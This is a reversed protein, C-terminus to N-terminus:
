NYKQLTPIDQLQGQLKNIKEELTRHLKLASKLNKLLTVLPQSPHSKQLYRKTLKTIDAYDFKKTWTAPTVTHLSPENEIDHLDLVTNGNNNQIEFIALTTLHKPGSEVWKSLKKHKQYRHIPTDGNENKIYATNKGYDGWPDQKINLHAFTNGKTTQLNKIGKTKMVWDPISINNQFLYALPDLDPTLLSTINIDSSKILNFIGELRFHDVFNAPDKLGQFEQKLMEPDIRTCQAKVLNPILLLEEFKEKTYYKGM